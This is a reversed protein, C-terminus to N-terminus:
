EQVESHGEVTEQSADEYAKRERRSMDRASIVRIRDQRITAAIFLRRGVDTQGLVLFRTEGRSHGADDAVVLPRNFFTQECEAATVGHRSWNKEANGEDWEFGVCALLEDM